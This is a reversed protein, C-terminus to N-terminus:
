LRLSTALGGNHAIKGLFELALMKCLTEINEELVLMNPDIVNAIWGRCSIGHQKLALFTLLAHNICGLRMGVVLIVPIGSQKLVDLWTEQASFPVMLGGAGEVLVLDFKQWLDQRLFEVVAQASLTIGEHQAAIHPAIPEKLMFRALNDYALLGSNAADLALLDPNSRAGDPGLDFGSVVPKICVAKLGQLQLHQVLKATVYTKGVGTDTGLIFYNKM